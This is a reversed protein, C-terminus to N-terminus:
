AFSWDMLRMNWGTQRPNGRSCKHPWGPFLREAADFAIGLQRVTLEGMEALLRRLRSLEDQYERRTLNPM